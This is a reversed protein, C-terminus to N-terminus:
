DGNAPMTLDDMLGPEAACVGVRRHQEGTKRFRDRAYADRRKHAVALERELGRNRLRKGAEDGGVASRSVRPELAHRDTLQERVPSSEGAIIISRVWGRPRDKVGIQCRM